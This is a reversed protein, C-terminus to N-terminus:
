TRCVTGFDGGDDDKMGGNVSHHVRLCGSMYFNKVRVRLGIDQAELITRETKKDPDFWWLATVFQDPETENHRFRFM